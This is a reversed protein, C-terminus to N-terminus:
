RGTTIILWDEEEEEQQIQILKTGGTGLTTGM